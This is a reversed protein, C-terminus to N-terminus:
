FRARDVLINKTVGIRVVLIIISSHDVIFTFVKTSMKIISRLFVVFMKHKGVITSMNMKDTVNENM